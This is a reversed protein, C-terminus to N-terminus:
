ARRRRVLGSPGVAIAALLATAPEPVATFRLNDLDGFPDEPPYALAWAIQPANVSMTEFQGEALPATLYSDVLVGAPSYAELRGRYLNDFFGSAIYDLSIDTVLSHFDMRFTRNTNWFPIGGAHAFVKTGTSADAPETYAVVDFTPRNDDFAGTSLTVHPSTTNLLQQHAYNDPEILIQQAIPGVSWAAQVWPGVLLALVAWSRRCAIRTTIRKM